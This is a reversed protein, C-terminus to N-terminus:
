FNLEASFKTQIFVFAASNILDSCPLIVNPNVQMYTQAQISFIAVNGSLLLGSIKKLRGIFKDNRWWRATWSGVDFFDKRVYNGSSDTFHPM